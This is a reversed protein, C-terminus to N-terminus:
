IQKTFDFFSIIKKSDIITKISDINSEKDTIYLFLICGGKIPLVQKSKLKDQIEKVKEYAQVRHTKGKQRGFFHVILLDKNTHKKIEEWSLHKETNDGIGNDPDFFLLDIQEGDVVKDYFIFKDKNLDNLITELQKINRNQKELFNGEIIYQERLKEYLEEDFKKYKSNHNKDNLYKRFEGDDREDNDTLLWCVGIKEYFNALIRLIGLKRFDHLDGAYQNKM